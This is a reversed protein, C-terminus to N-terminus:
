LIVKTHIAQCLQRIAQFVGKTDSKQQLKTLSTEDQMILINFEPHHYLGRELETVEIFIISQPAILWGRPTEVNTVCIHKFGDHLMAVTLFGEIVTENTWKQGTLTDGHWIRVWAQMAYAKELLVQVEPLTSAHMLPTIESTNM